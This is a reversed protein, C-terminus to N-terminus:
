KRRGLFLVKWFVEVAMFEGDLSVEQVLPFQSWRPLDTTRWVSEKLPSKQLSMRLIQVVLCAAPVSKKNRLLNSSHVVYTIESNRRDPVKACGLHTKQGYDDSPEVLSPGVEWPM